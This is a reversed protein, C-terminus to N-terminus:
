NDKYSLTNKERHAQMHMEDHPIRNGKQDGSLMEPKVDITTHSDLHTTM